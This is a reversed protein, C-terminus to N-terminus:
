KVESMIKLAEKSPKKEPKQQIRPTQYANIHKQFEILLRKELRDRNTSPVVHAVEIAHERLSATDMESIQEKYDGIDMTKYKSFGNEGFLQDLSTIEYKSKSVDTEEEKRLKGDIQNLQSLKKRAM